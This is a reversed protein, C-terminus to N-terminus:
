AAHRLERSDTRTYSGAASRLAVPVTPITVYGRPTRARGDAVTVYGAPSGLEPATTSTTSTTTVYANM